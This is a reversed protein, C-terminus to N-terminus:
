LLSGQKPGKSHKHVKTIYFSKNEYAGAVENLEQEAVMDVLLSDGQGFEYYHNALKLFFDEDRIDAAIKNGNWLFQWKRPSGDLVATLVVLPIRRYSEQKKKPLKSLEAEPIERLVIFQERTIPLVPKNPAKVTRFDVGTVNPDGEVVSFFKRVNRRVVPDRDVRSITRAADKPLVIKENGHEVIYSSDNVIIKVDDSTIKNVLISLLIPFIIMTVPTRLLTQTDKAFVRFVARISGQDSSIFDIEIEHGPNAVSNIARYLEDFTLLANGFTQADLGQSGIKFYLLIEEDSAGLSVAAAM